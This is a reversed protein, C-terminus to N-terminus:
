RVAGSAVGDLVKWRGGGRGQGRGAARPASDSSSRLASRGGVGDGTKADRGRPAEFRRGICECGNRAKARVCFGVHATRLLSM